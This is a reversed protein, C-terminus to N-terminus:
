VVVDDTAASRTGPILDPEGSKLLEVFRGALDSDFQSGSCRELEAAAEEVTLARRYPRESTMADYADAIALLRPLLPIQDNMAGQGYGSGDIHEHHYLVAEVIEGLYPVKSIVQAGLAPHEKILGYEEDTLRGPKNLVKMPVGIKGVDHLLAAYQLTDMRSQRLRLSRGLCTAYLAVRESHGRTYPDKAEVAGVLSRVTDVYAARLALYRKFVERAVVLPVIFLLFAPFAPRSVSVVQAISIGVAALALQQSVMWGVGSLLDSFRVNTQLHIGYMVLVVNLAIGVVPMAILPLLIAPFDAATLPRYVWAGNLSAVLLHGGLWLYVWGAAAGSIALQGFNLATSLAPRRRLDRLNFAGLSAATSSGAPGFMVAIAISLSYALSTSGQDPLEIALWDAVVTAFVLFVFVANVIPPQLLWSILLAVVGLLALSWAYVILSRTIPPTERM